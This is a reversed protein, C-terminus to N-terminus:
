TFKVNSDCFCMEIISGLLMYLPLLARSPMGCFCLRLFASYLCPLMYHLSTILFPHTDEVFQLYILYHSTCTHVLDLVLWLRPEYTIIFLSIVSSFFFFLNFMSPFLERLGYQCTDQKWRAEALLFNVIHVALHNNGHLCNLQACHYKGLVDGLTCLESFDHKITM